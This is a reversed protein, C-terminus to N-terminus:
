GRQLAVTWHCRGSQLTGRISDSAAAAAEFKITMPQHDGGPRVLNGNLRGDSDVSGHIVVTSQFPDFGFDKAGISLTGHTAPGCNVDEPTVAGVWRGQLGYWALVRGSQLREAADEKNCGATLMPLLLCSAGIPGGFRRLIRKLKRKGVLGLM